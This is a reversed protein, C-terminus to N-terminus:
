KVLNFDRGHVPQSVIVVVTDATEFAAFPIPVFYPCIERVNEPLSGIQFPFGSMGTEFIM